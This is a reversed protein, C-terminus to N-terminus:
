RIRALFDAVEARLQSSLQALELSATTMEGAGSSTAATADGIARARGNREPKEETGLYTNFSTVTLADLDGPSSVPGLGGHPDDGTAARAARYRRRGIREM